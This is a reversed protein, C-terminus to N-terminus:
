ESLADMRRRAIDIIGFVDYLGMIIGPHESAYGMFEQMEPVLQEVKKIEFAELLSPSVSLQGLVNYYVDIDKEDVELVELYIGKQSTIERACAIGVLYDKTLDPQNFLFSSYRELLYKGFSSHSEEIQKIQDQAIEQLEGANQSSLAERYNVSM